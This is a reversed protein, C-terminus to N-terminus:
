PALSDRFPNSREKSASGFSSKHDPILGARQYAFGQFHHCRNLATVPEMASAIPPSLEAM